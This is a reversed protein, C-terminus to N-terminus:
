INQQASSIEIPIKKSNRIEPRSTRTPTEPELTAQATSRSSMPRAKGYQVENLLELTIARRPHRSQRGQEHLPGGEDNPIVSLLRVLDHHPVVPVVAHHRPSISPPDRWRHPYRQVAWLRVSPTAPSGPWFEVVGCFLSHGLPQLTGLTSLNHLLIGV